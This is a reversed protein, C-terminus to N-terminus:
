YTTTAYIDGIDKFAEYFVGPRDGLYVAMSPFTATGVDSFSLRGWIFCRPYEKLKRFWRTDTRSPVLAIAESVEGAIYETILKDIWGPLARGYPPNMYVKGHWLCTLGDDEATYHKSAPIRQEGFWNGCPDLDIRGLTRVVREIIEPPTYWENTDSTYLAPNKQTKIETIAKNVTIAGADVAEILEPTGHKIVHKARKVTPVSVSMLEAAAPQTILPDISGSEPRHPPTNALRAAIMGRQSESLHRRKLNLSIVYALPNDGEYWRQPPTIGLELCAAYRNRGDLIQGEYVTIPERVGETAIDQAFERYDDGTMMPFINAIPHFEM